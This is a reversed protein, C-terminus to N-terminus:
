MRSMRIYRKIDPLSAVTFGAGLVGIGVLCATALVGMVRMTGGRWGVLVVRPRRRRDATGPRVRPIGSAPKPTMLPGLYKEAGSAPRV